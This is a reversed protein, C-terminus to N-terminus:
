TGGNETCRGLVTIPQANIKDDSHLLKSYCLTTTRLVNGLEKCQRYITSPLYPITWIPIIDGGGMISVEGSRGVALDDSSRRYRSRSTRNVHLKLRDSFAVLYAPLRDRIPRTEAVM